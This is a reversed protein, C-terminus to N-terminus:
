DHKKQFFFLLIYRINNIAISSLSLSLSFEMSLMQDNSKNSRNSSLRFLQILFRSFVFLIENRHLQNVLWDNETTISSSLQPSKIPALHSTTEDKLSCNYHKFVEVFLNYRQTFTSLTEYEKKM